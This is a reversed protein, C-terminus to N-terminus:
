PRVKSVDRANIRTHGGNHFTVRYYDASATKELEISKVRHGAQDRAPALPDAGVEFWRLRNPRRADIVGIKEIM